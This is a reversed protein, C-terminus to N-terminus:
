FSPTCVKNKIIVEPIAMFVADVMQGVYNESDSGNPAGMGWYPMIVQKHKMSGPGSFSFQKENYMENLIEDYIPLLRPTYNIDERQQQTYKNDTKTMMVLTVPATGFIKYNGRNVTVPYVFYVLPFNNPNAAVSRTVQGINGKDFFVSFPDVSRTSFTTNVRGVIGQMIDPLYPDVM